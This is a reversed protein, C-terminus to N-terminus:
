YCTKLITILNKIEMENLSGFGIRTFKDLSKSRPSLFYSSPDVPLFDKQSLHESFQPFSMGKPLPMWIALGGPPKQLLPAIKLLTECLFDRRQRYIVRAKNVHRQLEGESILDSITKELLPDGVKDVLEKAELIEKQLALPALIYGIRLGITLVKSLSCIYIVKKFLHYSALPFVPNGDYHFDHDYDDELIWFNFRNALDLLKMRRQAKMTVTTPYQHHPTIYVADIKKGQLLHAELEDVNMGSEDVGIKLLDFGARTFSKYAPIYGPSEIAITSTSSIKKLALAILFIAQQSGRTIILDDETCVIGRRLGLMGALAKRLALSGQPNIENMYLRHGSRRAVRGFTRSFIELPFLRTDPYGDNLRILKLNVVPEDSKKSLVRTPGRGEAGRLDKTIVPSKGPSSEIWGQTSLEEYAEVVTNRNIGLQQALTRSGPLKAGSALRGSQIANIIASAIQQYIPRSSNMDLEVPVEWERKMGSRWVPSGVIDFTARKDLGTM